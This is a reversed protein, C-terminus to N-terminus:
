DIEICTMAVNSNIPKMKMGTPSTASRAQFLTNIIEVKNINNVSDKEKRGELDGHKRCYKNSRHIQLNKFNHIPIM